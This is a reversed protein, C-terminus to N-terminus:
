PTAEAAPFVECDLWEQFLSREGEDPGGSPPMTPNEGSGRAQLREAWQLVLEWTDFDVGLPAEGRRGEPMDSSHCGTCHKELYGRGFNNYTLPPDRDCPGAEEGSDKGEGCALLAGALLAALGQRM